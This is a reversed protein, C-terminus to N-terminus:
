LLRKLQHLIELAQKPSLADPDVAAMARVIAHNPDERFLALQATEGSPPSEPPPEPPAEPPPEPPPPPRPDGSELEKLMERARALVGPPVGALAAVQLGYSRDAPGEKVQHLFVIRHGHEVADLHINAVADARSPLDTLEFYHTAFLTFARAEKALHMASAFALSLGDYTSTGRGIEDMLVLSQETANHLINATETMEVMFTSRGGALDDAAGIRTFIRDVPGIVAGQAPVFSGVCALLVILASQRMYTSKGGMNPGTIILMRREDSLDLDNVVFPDTLVQEVVPHRGGTIRIGPTDTLEPARLDLDVARGALNILVDIEALAGASRQLPAIEEGLRGLLEEYLMKERALARERASLVKDEFAKLAPTIYREAGKLTQRRIYNAPAKDAQARGLEIYYGHVRNYGVKLNGIGTRAREAREMEVLRAGADSGLGRLEDLEADFGTAIVGGDRILVPPSEVVARTLLTHLEPYEGLTELLEALLSPPNEPPTNTAGPALPALTEALVPLIALGRRLQALDRPRASGLAIRALIREMDGVEELRARAAETEPAAAVLAAVCRHRRRLRHHDRLPYGLWRRLLRSGMPTRTRDMVGVLTNQAGQPAQSLSESIELNRRTVADLILADERREVRLGRIHPLKSRQTDKAYQLLSGAAAILLPSDCGFGALDQTGFQQCLLRQGSDPEFHWPPQRRLGPYEKLLAPLRIDESVLLEAPGLRELEAALADEGSVPLVSFRGSGLDLSAIGFTKQPVDDPDAAPHVAVLLNERHDELLAEDTVTGPTVIRTVRREVPGKAKAPDGIQECLAASQGQRLLKALYADVAHFPVGAMPIPEGGSQGRATLAIDLLKAAQRADDFFLEYFDGMRYFLLTDPHEAKIQLYQRIVPTHKPNEQM